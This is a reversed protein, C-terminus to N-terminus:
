NAYFYHGYLCRYEKHIGWADTETNGTWVADSGCRPCRVDMAYASIALSVIFTILLGIFLKKKM